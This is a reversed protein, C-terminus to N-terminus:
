ATQIFFFGADTHESIDKKLFLYGIADSLGLAGGDKSPIDSSYIQCIFYYESLLENCGNVGNPLEKSFFSFAPFIDSELERPKLSFRNTQSGNDAKLFPNESVIVKTFGKKIYNFEVQDGSYIIDDLFYREESYTSFVSTFKDEPLIVESINENFRNNDITMLLKLDEGLPNQPWDLDTNKDGGLIIGFDNDNTAHQFQYVTKM